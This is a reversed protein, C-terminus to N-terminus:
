TAWRKEVQSTTRNPFMTAIEKWDFRMQQAIRHLLSDEDTTWKVRNRTRETQPKILADPTKFDDITWLTQFSEVSADNVRTRPDLWAM